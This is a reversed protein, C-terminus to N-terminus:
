ADKRGLSLLYGPDKQWSALIRQASEASVRDYLILVRSLERPDVVQEGPRAARSLLFVTAFDSKEIGAGRCVVAMSEGGAEQLLARVADEPLGAFRALLAPFAQYRGRRLLAIMMAATIAGQGQMRAFVADRGPGRDADGAEGLTELVEDLATDLDTSDIAFRRLISQRLEESVWWYLKRAMRVSVDGRHLLPERVAGFRLAQDSLAQMTRDSIYAHPHQAVEASVDEDALAVLAATLPEPLVSRRAIYRAHPVGHRGVIAILEADSLLQSQELIDAAVSIEDNALRRILEAPAHRADALRSALARRVDTEAEELLQRLIDLVLLRERDSLKRPGRAFLDSVAEALARRAAPSRDRAM